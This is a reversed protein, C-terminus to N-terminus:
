RNTASYLLVDGSQGVLTLQELIQPRGLEQERSGYYVLDIGLRELTHFEQELSYDGRFFDGVLQQREEAFISEYPHGYVVRKGSYAPIFLGSDPGALVVEAEPEDKIRQMVQYEDLSLYLLPDQTTTGFFSSMLIIINTPLILVWLTFMWFLRRSQSLRIFALTGLLAIPIFLGMMFRRQLSFPIYLMLLGLFTWALLVQDQVTREPNRILGIIEILALFLLPSLGIVTGLIGPTETLNQANWIKLYPDTNSVWLDYVLPTLGGIALSGDLWLMQQFEDSSWVPQKQIIREIWQFLTLGGYIMLTVVVGFPNIIGLLFSLVIGKVIISIKNKKYEMDVLMIIALVLALGLPFHPNSYMSLFPFGEAVWFDPTFGGFMAAVWGLGSGLALVAYALRIGPRTGYIWKVFRYLVYLFLASSLIRSLHFIFKVGLHTIRSLHGLFIYFLFLYSGKGEEPTYPLQFEWEGRQGIQMKAYYSHGDMPNFVFGTFFETDGSRIEGFLYPVSIILLVFISLILAFRGNRNM